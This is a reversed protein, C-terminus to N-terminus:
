ALATQAEELPGGPTLGLARTLEAVAVWDPLHRQPPRIAARLEQEHGDVNTVTGSQEYPHAIPLLVSHEGSLPSWRLQVSKASTSPWAEDGVLLVVPTDFTAEPLDAMSFGNAATAPEGVMGTAEFRRALDEAGKGLISIPGAPAEGLATALDDATQYGAAMDHRLGNPGSGVFYLQGGAKLAERLRLALVPLQTWVDFDLLIITKSRTLDAITGRVRGTTAKPWVGLRVNLGSSLMRLEALAQNTLKPSAVVEVQGSRLLDAAARVAEPRSVVNPGVMPQLRGAPGAALAVEAPDDLRRAGGGAFQWDSAAAVPRPPGSPPLTDWRGYDCLWENNVAMNERPVMRLLRGGRSDLLVNCGVACGTCVSPTRTLDWPRAQFRYHRSLLAGVPCIDVTNGSFPSDFSEGPLTGIQSEGARQIASIAQDGVVEDHFRVCRYCMICRERDIVIRDSLPLAKALQRKPETFRSMGLGYRFTNDQLPCEGGKDCIPCDLPHNALLLELVAKQAAVAPASRSAAVMGDTVMTSCATQLGRMKEVEVLCMRCAGVPKMKPHYCFVPIEIGAMKAAEVLLTGKPVQLEIGDITLNLLEASVADVLRFPM